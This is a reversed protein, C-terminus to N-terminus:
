KKELKKSSLEKDKNLNDTITSKIVQIKTESGIDLHVINDEIKNVVGIIGGAAVVKDGKKLSDVMTAQAKQKKVQPKILLFYFVLFIALMPLLSMLSNAAGAAPAVEGAFVNTPMFLSM